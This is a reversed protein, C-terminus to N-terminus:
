FILYKFHFNKIWNHILCLKVNEMARIWHSKKNIIAMILALPILFSMRLQSNPPDNRAGGGVSSCILTTWLNFYTTSQGSKQSLTTYTRVSIIFSLFFFFQALCWLHHRIKKSHMLGYPAKAKARPSKSLQKWDFLKFNTSSSDSWMLCSSQIGEFNELFCLLVCSRENRMKKVECVIRALDLCHSKRAVKRAINYHIEWLTSQFCAIKVRAAM